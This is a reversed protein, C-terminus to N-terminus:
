KGNVMKDTLKAKKLAEQVSSNQLLKRMSANQEKLSTNEAKLRANEVKLRALPDNTQIKGGTLTGVVVANDTSIKDSPIDAVHPRIFLSVQRPRPLGVWHVLFVFIDDSAGCLVNIVVVNTEGAPYFLQAHLYLIRDWVM